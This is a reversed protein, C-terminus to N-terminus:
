TLCYEHGVKQNSKDFNISSGNINVVTTGWNGTDVIMPLVQGGITVNVGYSLGFTTLNVEFFANCASAFLLIPIISVFLDKVAMDRVRVTLFAM